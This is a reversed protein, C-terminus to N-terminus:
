TSSRSRKGPQKPRLSERYKRGYNMAKEFYPDGRFAGAWEEWWPKQSPLVAQRLQAVEAELAAVRKELNGDAM